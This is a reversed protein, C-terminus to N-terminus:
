APDSRSGGTAPGNLDSLSSPSIRHRQRNAHQLFIEFTLGPDGQRRFDGALQLLKTYRYDHFFARAVARLDRVLFVRVDLERIRTTHEALAIQQKSYLRRAFVGDVLHRVTGDDGPQHVPVNILVEDFGQLALFM